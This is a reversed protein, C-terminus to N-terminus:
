HNLSPEKTADLASTAAWDIARAGEGRGERGNPHCKRPSLVLALRRTGGEVVHGSGDSIM